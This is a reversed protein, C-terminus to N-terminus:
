SKLAGAISEVFYRQLFLFVLIIPLLTITSAAAMGAWDNLYEGRFSYVGVALTRLEPRALTLVLPLLFSNWSSMFQLIVATAVVPKALPLYVQAFIRFFGAGDIRAAEELEHPLQGFYGAFLLTIIVHAGGAEALTVGWLSGSLGLATILDFVPIITYGEPLFIAAAFLGIIVKKGPFRYRGLVYGILATSGVSIVISFFTIFVTNFFYRGINAQTWARVYNDLRVVEPILNLGAFIEKNSKVSASIVWIFPYIWVLCIPILIVSLITVRLTTRWRHRPIRQPTSRPSPPHTQEPPAAVTTM